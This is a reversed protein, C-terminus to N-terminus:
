IGGHRMITMLGACLAYLIAGSALALIGTLVSLLRRASLGALCVTAGGAMGIVAPAFWAITAGLDGTADAVRMHFYGAYVYWVPWSAVAWVAVAYSAIWLAPHSVRM